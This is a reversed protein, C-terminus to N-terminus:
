NKSKYIDARLLAKRLGWHVFFNNIFFHPSEPTAARNSYSLEYRLDGDHDSWFQGIVNFKYLTKLAEKLVKEPYESDNHFAKQLRNFGFEDTNLKSVIHILKDIYEKQFHIQLELKVDDLLWMSYEEEINKFLYSSFEKLKPYHQQGFRLFRLFDRPRLFTRSLIYKGTNIERLKGKYFTKINEPFLNELIDLKNKKALEPNRVKIKHVLLEFLPSEYYNEEIEKNWSIFLTYDDILKNFNHDYINFFVETRVLLIIKSNDNYRRLFNNFYYVANILSRLIYMGDDYFTLKTDIDDIIVIYSRGDGKSLSLLPILLSKLKEINFNLNEHQSVMDIFKKADVSIPVSPIHIHAGSESFFKKVTSFITERKIAFHSDIFSRLEEYEKEECLEKNKIIERSIEILLIWQFFNLYDDETFARKSVNFTSTTLEALSYREIYTATNQYKEKLYAGLYTKGSGRRGLIYYINPKLAKNALDSYDFYLELFDQEKIEEEADTNGLFINELYM